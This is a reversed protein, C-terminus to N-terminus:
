ALLDGPTEMKSRSRGTRRRARLMMAASLSAAAVSGLSVQAPSVGFGSEEPANAWTRPELDPDSAGLSPPGPDKYDDWFHPDTDPHSGRELREAMYATRAKHWADAEARLRRYLAKLDDERTPREFPESILPRLSPGKPAGPVLSTKDSDILERCRWSAFLAVSTRGGDADLALALANFVDVSEWANGLAILGSLAEVAARPDDRKVDGPTFNVFTPLRQGKGPEYAPPNIVWELIKLQYPERGFHAKPNLAIASAIQDRAAEVEAVRRRDGGRRFWGHAEFTGLNAFYRYRHEAVDRGLAEAADLRDRKRAMWEIAEDGRGLRDCAVGADDYAAFDDPDAKAREDARDLRMEYYLPPNREFRGTLVRVVAPMGKAETALTDSDWLCGRVPGNAPCLVSAAAAAALVVRVRLKVRM